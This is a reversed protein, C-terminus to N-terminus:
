RLISLTSILLVPRHGSLVADADRSRHLGDDLPPHATCAHALNIVSTVGDQVPGGALGHDRPTPWQSGARYGDSDLRLPGPYVAPRVPPADVHPRPPHQCGRRCPVAM